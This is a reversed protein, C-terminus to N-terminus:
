PTVGVTGLAIVRDNNATDLLEVDVSAYGEYGALHRAVTRLPGAGAQGVYRVSLDATVGPAVSEAAACLTMATAGGNVTGFSNLVYPSKELLLEGPSVENLELMDVAPRTFGSQADAMSWREGVPRWVVAASAGAAERPIRTFTMVATGAHRTTAEEGRGDFLESRVVIVRAGARITRTSIVLPGEVVGGSSQYSLDSTAVWDDEAASMAVQAGAIDVVAAIVGVQMGRPNCVEPPAPAYVHLEEDGIWVSTARLDRLLHNPPPYTSM